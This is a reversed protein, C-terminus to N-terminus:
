EKKWPVFFSTVGQFFSGGSSPASDTKKAAAPKKAVKSRAAQVNDLWAQQDEASESLISPLQRHFLRRDPLDLGRPGKHYETVITNCLMSEILAQEQRPVITTHYDWQVLAMLAVIVSFFLMSSVSSSSKPPKAIEDEEVLGSSEVSTETSSENQVIPTKEVFPETVAAATASPRPPTVKPVPVTAPTDIVDVSTDDQKSPSDMKKEEEGQRRKNYRRTTPVSASTKSQTQKNSTTRLKKTVVAGGAKDGEVAARRKRGQTETQMLSVTESEM